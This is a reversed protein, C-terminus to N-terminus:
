RKYEQKTDVNILKVHGGERIVVYNNRPNSQMQQVQEATYNGKKDPITIIVDGNDSVRSAVALENVSKRFMGKTQEYVDIMTEALVKADKAQQAQKALVLKPINGRMSAAEYAGLQMDAIYKLKMLNDLYSSKPDTFLKEIQAFTKVNLYSNDRLGQLVDLNTKDMANLADKDGVINWVDMFAGFAAKLRGDLAGIDTPNVQVTNLTNKTKELFDIHRRDTSGPQLTNIFAAYAPQANNALITNTELAKALKRTNTEQALNTGELQQYTDNMFKEAALNQANSNNDTAQLIGVLDGKATAETRKAEKIEQDTKKTGKQSLMDIVAQISDAGKKDGQSALLAHQKQLGVLLTKAETDLSSQTALEETRKADAAKKDADAILSKIKANSISVERGVKPLFIGLQGIDIAQLRGNMDVGVLIDKDLEKQVEPTMKDMDLGRLAAIQERVMSLETGSMLSKDYFHMYGADNAVQLMAPDDTIAANIVDVNGHTRYANVADGFNNAAITSKLNNLELQLQENKLEQSRTNEDTLNTQANMLNVRANTELRRQKIDSVAKYADIYAQGFNM